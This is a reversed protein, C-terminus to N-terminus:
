LDLNSAQPITALVLLSCLMCCRYDLNSAQPITALVM